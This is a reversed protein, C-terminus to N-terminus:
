RQDDKADAWNTITSSVLTMFTEIECITASRSVVIGPTCIAIM